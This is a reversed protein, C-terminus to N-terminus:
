DQEARNVVAPEVGEVPLTISTRVKTFNMENKGARKSAEALRKRTDRLSVCRCGIMIEVPRSIHTVTHWLRHTTKNQQQKTNEQKSLKEM